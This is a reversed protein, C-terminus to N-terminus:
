FQEIGESSGWGYVYMVKPIVASSSNFQISINTSIDLFAFWLSVKASKLSVRLRRIGVGGYWIEFGDMRDWAWVVVKTIPGHQEAFGRNNFHEMSSVIGVGMTETTNCAVNRSIPDYHGGNDNIFQPWQLSPALLDKIQQQHIADARLETWGYM